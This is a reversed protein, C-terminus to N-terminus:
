PVHAPFLKPTFILFIILAIHVAVSLVRVVMNSKVDTKTEAEMLLNADGTLLMDPEVVERLQATLQTTHEFEKREEPKAPEVYAPVVIRSGLVALVTSDSTSQHREIQKIAMGRAVLTRNVLVDLPLYSPISTKGDLPPAESLQSPVVTRDDMYTNVRTPRKKAEEETLPRVNVPVLTRPIM